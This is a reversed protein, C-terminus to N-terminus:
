GGPFALGDGALGATRGDAFAMNRPSTATATPVPTTIGMRMITRILTTTIARIATVTATAAASRPSDSTRPLTAEAIPTAPTTIDGTTSTAAMIDAAMIDAAMIDAATAGETGAVEMDAAALM